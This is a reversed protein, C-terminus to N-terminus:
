AVAPESMVPATKRGRLRFNEPVAQPTFTQATGIGHEALLMEVFSRMWNPRVKTGTPLRQYRGAVFRYCEKMLTQPDTPESLIFSRSTKTKKQKKIKLPAVAHKYAAFSRGGHSNEAGFVKADLAAWTWKNPDSNRLEVVKETRKATQANM